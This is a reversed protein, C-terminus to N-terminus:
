GRVPDPVREALRTNASSAHRWCARERQHLRYPITSHPLLIQKGRCSLGHHPCARCATSRLNTPIVADVARLESSPWTAARLTSRTCIAQSDTQFGHHHHSFLIARRALVLATATLSVPLNIDSNITPALYRLEMAGIGLSASEMVVIRWHSGIRASLIGKLIYIYIYTSFHPLFKIMLFQSIIINLAVRGTGPLMDRSVKWILIPSPPKLRRNCAPITRLSNYQKVSISM